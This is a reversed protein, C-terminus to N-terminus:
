PEKSKEQLLEKAREATKARASEELKSFVKMEAQAEQTRGLARYAQALLFHTSSEGADAKAAAELDKVADAHRDLKILARARDVQAGTLDPCVDLAKQVEALAQSSDGHQELIVNGIKWQALCNSPDNALEGRFQETAEDWMNLSWYANGLHYHTGAQQPAVKVAKKYELLAGDYNKMSEMVEGSIEHVWVSDPDLSTLKSLAEESLKMHAKGLLYLVEQNKPQHLSLQRLHDAARQFDGLKILDNALFLEANNDKPNGRLAAELSLEAGAYDALEYLAMGLLASASSMKPDVKLGKDLVVAAKKYERQRLYLSGLNNYAPALRPAIQLLSEYDATAGALDGRAEAAKADAYLKQIRAEATSQSQANLVQTFCLIALSVFWTLALRFVSVSATAISASRM